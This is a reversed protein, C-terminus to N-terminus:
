DETFKTAKTISMKCTDCTCEIAETKPIFRERCDCSGYCDVVITEAEAFIQNNVKFEDYWANVLLFTSTKDSGDTYQFLIATVNDNSYDEIKNVVVNVPEVQFTNKFSKNVISQFNYSDLDDFRTVVVSMKCNSCKCQIYDMSGELVCKKNSCNGVCTISYGIKLTNEKGYCLKFAINANEKDSDLYDILATTTSGSEFYNISTVGSVTQDIHHKQLESNVKGILDKINEAIRRGSPSNLSPEDQAVSILSAFLCIILFFLSKKMIDSKKRSQQFIRNETARM